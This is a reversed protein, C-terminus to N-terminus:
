GDRPALGELYEAVAVCAPNRTVEISVRAFDAATGQHERDRASIDAGAEVLLKVMRLNGEWAASHLLTGQSGISSRASPNAGRELLWTALDYHGFDVAGVIVDDIRTISPDAAILSALTERDGLRAFEQPKASVGRKLLHRLLPLGRAGLRSMQEIPTTEWVDAKDISAGLELLRDIAYTTRAHSLWSGGGPARNAIMAKGGQLLKEVRADDAFVLAEALGITAGRKLLEERMDPRDNHETLMLPSWGEYYQNTGNIDAGAALLLDFVERNKGEIAMHLPQPRGGWYPHPGISNVLAPTTALSARVSEIPGTRVERLFQAVQGDDPVAATAAARLQADFHAKLARWSSFGYQRAVALQADALRAEPRQVRLEHLQQKATKRLWDLNPRSPLTVM